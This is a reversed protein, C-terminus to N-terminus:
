PLKIRTSSQGLILFPFAQLKVKNPVTPFIITGIAEYSIEDLSCYETPQIFNIVIKIQLFNRRNQQKSYLDQLQEFSPKIRESCWFRLQTWVQKYSFVTLLSSNRDLNFPKLQQIQQNQQKEIFRSKMRTKTKPTIQALSLLDSPPTTDCPNITALIM